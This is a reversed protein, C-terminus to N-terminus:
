KARSSHFSVLNIDFILTSYAPIGSTGNVGYGLMYPIYIKWIDGDTMNQIATCFGTVTESLKLTAPVNFSPNLEGSYSKDFLYGDPYTASPILRGSYNIVVSDNFLPHTTGNGEEIVQCYVYYENSWEKEPNLGDALFIKWDGYTNARAVTAISDVFQVNRAQWNDFEGADSSEDCSTLGFLALVMLSLLIKLEKM